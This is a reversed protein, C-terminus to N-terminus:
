LYEQNTKNKLPKKEDNNIEIKKLVKVKNFIFTILLIQIASFFLLFIIKIITCFNIKNRINEAINFHTKKRIASNGINFKLRDIKKSLKSVSEVFNEVNKISLKENSNEDGFFFSLTVQHSSLNEVCFKYYGEIQTFLYIKNSESDLERLINNNNPDDVTIINKDEEQGSISYIINLIENSKKFKKVCIKEQSDIYVFLSNIFNIQNNLYFLILIFNKFPM